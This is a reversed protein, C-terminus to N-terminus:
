IDTVRRHEPAAEDDFARAHDPLLVVVLFPVHTRLYEVLRVLRDGDIMELSDLLMFPVSEQVDHVLYGALAVVLGVLERESESLHEVRDEYTAGSSSRRVVHLEFTQESVQRPTTSVQREVSEIWIREVNDYGLEDLVAEMHTNFGEIAQTEIREIRTRLETLEASIAEREAELEERTELDAEIEEISSEVDALRDATRDRDYTLESVEQQLTLLEDQQAAQLEEVRAELEEVRAELEERRGELEAVNEERRELQTELETLQTELRDREELRDRLEDRESVLDAIRDALERREANQEQLLDRLRGVMTDIRSREVTSGCTWCTTSDNGAVLQDTVEGDEDDAVGLGDLVGDDTEELREQNFQVVQRLESVSSEVAAKRERLNEIREELVALREDDPDELAERRETLDAREERLSALSKREVELEREVRELETEADRLSVLRADLQAEVDSESRDPEDAELEARAERKEVLQAELEELESELQRRDAEFERLEETLADLRDLEAHVEQRRDVLASIEAQIAETDVPRMILERLNEGRRVARRIENDELLVAYLDLLAPDDLYPEGSTTVTDGQRTLRRTYTEGDLMLTVQGEEADGKLTVRDSGLAGAVAQLLSTRNTANPGVLATIGPSLEVSTEDIGGVNEVALTAAAPARLDQTVVALQLRGYLFM